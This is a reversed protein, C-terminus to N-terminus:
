VTGVLLVDGIVFGKTEGEEKGERKRRGRAAM